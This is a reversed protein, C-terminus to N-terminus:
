YKYKNSLSMFTKKLKTLFPMKKEYSISVHSFIKVPFCIFFVKCTMKIINNIILDSNAQVLKFLVTLNMATSVTIHM